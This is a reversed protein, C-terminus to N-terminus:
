YWFLVYTQLNRNVFVFMREISLILMFVFSRDEFPTPAGDSLGICLLASRESTNDCMKSTIELPEAIKGITIIAM